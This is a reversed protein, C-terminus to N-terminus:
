GFYIHRYFNHIDSLIGNLQQLQNKEICAAVTRRHLLLNFILAFNMLARNIQIQHTKM